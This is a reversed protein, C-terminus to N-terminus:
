YWIWGFLVIVIIWQWWNYSVKVECTDKVTNGYEDTVTVTITASGTKGTSVKGNADVSAVSPNSSSYTVTYKVGADVSIQPNLTTSGKYDLAAGSVSVSHVKGKVVTVPITENKLVVGCATCSQTKVGTQTSTAPKTVVWEGATHSKANVYDAVYTDGCECTYTTYGKDECTPATVVTTYSHKELKAITETYSDGCACTYTMVGEATHTAPTTVKSTYSHGKADVYDAVYTDGCECTYTTYGKDECTPATVVTTYSHKELKAITETYSDGCACTYTMVGTSTHTAPTTVESTHSHGKADVYDAVYSEGCECTYTTYGQETCTPATVVSEYRHQAIKDITETYTDGCHCTYTMVGTTTHTAPTTVESTYSHGKADVYDAVYSDGCECTYTTYGQETCTPATVATEYSHEHVKETVTVIFMAESGKYTVTVIQEGIEDFKDPTCTFGSTIEKTTGNNYYETIVLGETNISDGQSYELKTPESTLSWTLMEIATVTVDYSVKFGNYDIVVKKIDASDLVTDVTYNSDIIASTGDTYTVKLTLGSTNVTDGVFYALQSPVTAIEVKSINVPHVKVKFFTSATYYSVKVIQDGAKSLTTVNTTYGSTVYDVTADIYTVKIVMGSCDLEYGVFYETKSPMTVVAISSIGTANVTLSTEKGAFSVKVTNNGVATLKDTSISYGSNLDVKKGNNLTVTLVLGTTDVPKGLYQKNTPLTKVAISAVDEYAVFPVSKESCYTETYSGKNGFVTLKSCGSFAYNGISTIKSTTFLNVIGSCNYFAYDGISTVNDPINIETLFLCNYFAGYPITTDKTITVTLLTKPIYYYAGGSSSFKQYTNGGDYDFIYGFVGSVGSSSSNKGVFPLTIEELRNMGKFAGIGISTVSDPIVLETILSCNQFAYSNITKLSSPLNLEKIKSCGSFAYSEITELSNSFTVTELNSCGNFASTGVSTITNPLVVSTFAKCNEFACTDITKLYSPM